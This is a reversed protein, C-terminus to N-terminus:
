SQPPLAPPKFYDGSSEPRPLVGIQRGARFVYRPELHRRVTETVGFADTMEFEGEQLELVVIDAIASPRLTGIDDSMTLFQAPTATVRRLAEDLDMGIHLFKSVTTALDFVPGHLNYTHLDSSITDPAVGQGLAARGMEFTFSGRGHGVDLHLGEEIKKRVAPIVNHDSDFIGSPVSINLM